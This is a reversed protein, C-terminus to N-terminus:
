AAAPGSRSSAQHRADAASVAPPRLSEVLEAIRDLDAPKAFHHDFGAARCRERDRPHSWGTVAAIVPRPRDDDAMRLRRAVEYGDMVPMGIDLLVLHPRYHRAILLAEAGSHAVRPHLGLSEVVMALSAAADVNDDVVLVRPDGDSPPVAERVAGASADGQRSHGVVAQPLEAALPLVVTFCAGHGRGDSHGEVTGGHLEVLNRVLALGIGLGERLGGSTREGQTFLEFVRALMDPEIGQGDDVVEVIVRDGTARARLWVHGGDNGYKGANNLLNGFVQAIRVPDADIPLPTDPFDVEVVCGGRRLQPRSLDLASELAIRLDIRETHLTIMGRSLRSAELLDDVLRVMHTVQRSMMARLQQRRDVDSDDISLIHLANNIPALPNRLEHALMALFEDKRRMAVVEAEHAEELQLLHSRIEYQRARARLATRVASLLAAVRLPRELLTVNSLMAVTDGVVTSDAGGRTLLLIPLDSWHPQAQVARAVAGLAGGTAVTEECLIVAGCGLAIQEELETANTCVRTDIGERALLDGTIAGDRTTSLLLLVRQETGSLAAQSM